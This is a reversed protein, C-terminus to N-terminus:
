AEIGYGEALALVAVELGNAYAGEDSILNGARKDAEEYADLIKTHAAVMRLVSAPDHRIIHGAAASDVEEAYFYKMNLPGVSTPFEEVTVLSADWEDGDGRLLEELAPNPTVPTWDGGMGWYWHVGNETGPRAKGCANAWAATEDLKARLRALLDDMGNM